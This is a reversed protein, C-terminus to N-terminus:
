MLARIKPYFEYAFNGMGEFYKESEFWGRILINKQKSKSLDYKHCLYDSEYFLIGCKYFWKAIFEDFKYQKRYVMRLVFLESSRICFEKFQFYDNKKVIKYTSVQYDELYNRWEANGVQDIATFDIALDQGTEQQVKRAFAYQFLQNGITWVYNSIDRCEAEKNKCSTIVRCITDVDM